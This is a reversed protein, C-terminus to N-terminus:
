DDWCEMENQVAEQPTYTMWEGTAYGEMEISNIACDECYAFDVDGVIRSQMCKAYAVLWTDRTYPVRRNQVVQLVRKRLLDSLLEADSMEDLAYNLMHFVQIETLSHNLKSPKDMPFVMQLLEKAYSKIM